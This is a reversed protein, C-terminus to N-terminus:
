WFIADRPSSFRCRDQQPNCKQPLIEARQLQQRQEGQRQRPRLIQSEIAYCRCEHPIRHLQNCCQESPQDSSYQQLTQMQLYEEDGQQSTQMQLCEEDDASQEGYQVFDRCPNLNVEEAMRRCEESRREGNFKKEEYYEGSPHHRWASGVTMIAMMVILTIVVGKM